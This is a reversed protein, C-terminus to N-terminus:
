KIVDSIRHLPMGFKVVDEYHFLYCKSNSDKDGGIIIRHYVHDAIMKKLTSTKLLIYMVAHYPTHVKYVYFDSQSTRIGSDKGRCSFELGINGTRECTSDEKVEFFYQKDNKMTSLDYRRDCGFELVSFGNQTLIDAVEHEAKDSEIKDLQFNYQATAM